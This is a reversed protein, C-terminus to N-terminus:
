NKFNVRLSIANPNSEVVYSAAAEDPPAETTLTRTLGDLYFKTLAVDSPPFQGAAINVKDGGSLDLRSYRVRPTEEWGNEEDKLYHDSFRHLDERNKEDYYDPWEQSNHIRLWKEQSAM